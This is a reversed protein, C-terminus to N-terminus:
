KPPEWITGDVRQANWFPMRTYTARVIVQGEFTTRWAAADVVVSILYFHSGSSIEPLSIHWVGEEGGSLIPNLRTSVGADSSLTRIHIDAAHALTFPTGDEYSIALWIVGNITQHLYLKGSQVPVVTHTGEATLILRKRANPFKSNGKAAVPGAGFKNIVNGVGSTDSQASPPAVATPNRQSLHLKVSANFGRQGAESLADRIGLSGPGTLTNGKAGLAPDGFIGSAIDFGLWYFVDNELTRAAAVGPDTEAIAAGVAALAANKNRDLSFARAIRFGVQEDPSLMAYTRQKGPGDLTNGEWVAMGIDFGRRRPGEAERNRLEATLPDANAIGEGRAALDDLNQANASTIALAFILLVFFTQILKSIIKEM